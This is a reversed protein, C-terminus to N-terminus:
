VFPFLHPHPSGTDTPSALKIYSNCISFYVDQTKFEEVLIHSPIIIKAKFMEIYYAGAETYLRM